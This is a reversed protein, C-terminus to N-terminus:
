WSIILFTHYGLKAFTFLILLISLYQGDYHYIINEPVTIKFANVITNM